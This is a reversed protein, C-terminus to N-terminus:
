HRELVDQEVTRLGVAYGQSLLSQSFANFTQDPSLDVQYILGHALYRRIFRPPCNCANALLATLHGDDPAPAVSNFTLIIRTPTAANMASPHSPACGSSALLSASILTTCLVNRCRM